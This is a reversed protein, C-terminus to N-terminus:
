KATWGRWISVISAAANSMLGSSLNPSSAMVEPVLDSDWHLHEPPEPEEDDSTCSLIGDKDIGGWWLGKSTLENEDFVFIDNWDSEEYDRRPQLPCMRLLMHLPPERLVFRFKNRTNYSISRILVAACNQIKWVQTKFRREELECSCLDSYTLNFPLRVDLYFALLRILQASYSLAASIRYAPNQSVTEPNGANSTSGVLGTNSSVWHCYSSYDGDLPLSAYVIQLPVLATSEELVKAPQSAEAIARETFDIVGYGVSQSNPIERIPFVYDTLQKLKLRRLTFLNNQENNIHTRKKELAENKSLAYVHINEVNEKYLPLKQKVQDNYDVLSNIVAIKNKVNDRKQQIALKLLNTREKCNNIDILVSEKKFRNKFLKNYTEEICKCNSKIRMLRLQKDAFRDSCLAASHVIDGNRVCQGCHFVARRRDCLACRVPRPAAGGVGVGVGTVAAAGRSTM